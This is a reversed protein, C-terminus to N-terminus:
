VHARLLLCDALAAAMYVTCLCRPIFHGYAKALNMQRVCHKAVIFRLVTTVVVTFSVVIVTHPHVTM